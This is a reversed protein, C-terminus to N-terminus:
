LRLQDADTDRDDTGNNDLDRKDVDMFSIAFNMGAEAAEFASRARIADAAIRQDIMSTRTVYFTGGTALILLVLGVTLAVAGRQRARSAFGPCARGQPTM